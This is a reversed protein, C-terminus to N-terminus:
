ALVVTQRRRRAAAGVLGFGAILMAWSAPEPVAGAASFSINSLGPNVGNAAVVTYRVFQTSQFNALTGSFAFSDFNTPTMPTPKSFFQAAGSALSFSADTFGQLSFQTTFDTTGGSFSGNNGGSTVRDALSFGVLTAVRGLDLNLFSGAGQSNSAWDTANANSGQDIANAAAFGNFASSGVASVPVITSTPAPTAVVALAPASVIACLAFSAILVSKM